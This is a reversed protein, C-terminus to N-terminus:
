QKVQTAQPVQTLLFYDIQIFPSTLSLTAAHEAHVSQNVDKMGRWESKDGDRRPREKEM